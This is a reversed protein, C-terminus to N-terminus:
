AAGGEKEAKIRLSPREKCGKPEREMRWLRLACFESSKKTNEM